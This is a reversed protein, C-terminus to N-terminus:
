KSTWWKKFLSLTLTSLIFAITPVVANAFPLPLGAVFFFIVIVAYTLLAVVIKRLTSTEWAKDAEVKLNRSKIQDIEQPLSELTPM